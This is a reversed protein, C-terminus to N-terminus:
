FLPGTPQPPSSDIFRFEAITPYANRPVTFITERTLLESPIFIRPLILFIYAMQRSNSARLLSALLFRMLTATTFATTSFTRSLQTLPLHCFFDLLHSSVKTQATTLAPSINFKLRTQLRARVHTYLHSLKLRSLRQSYAYSNHLTCPRYQVHTRSLLGTPGLHQQADRVLLAM